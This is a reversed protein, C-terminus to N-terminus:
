PKESDPTEPKDFVIANLHEAHVEPKLEAQLEALMANLAAEREERWLQRRVAESVQELTQVQEPRVGTLEVVSWKGDGLDLPESLDKVGELAFAARVLTLDVTDSSERGVVRGDEAFYLLDGGRVNTEGDLSREKALTRFSANQDEVLMRRIEEAEEKSGVLIHRARRMAPRRFQEPHQEYYARVEETPVDNPSRAEEFEKRVFLKVLTQDVFRAVDPDDAYGLKEAGQYYLETQVQADALEQLSNTEVISKRAYPSRAAVIENLEGVTITETGVKAFGRPNDPDSSSDPTEAPPEALVRAALVTVIALLVLTLRRM